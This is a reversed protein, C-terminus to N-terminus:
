KSCEKLTEEQERTLKIGDLYNSSYDAKNHYAWRHRHLEGANITALNGRHKARNPVGYGKINYINGTELEVMFAGSTGADINAWTKKIKYHYAHNEKFYDLRTINVHGDKILEAMELRNLENCLQKLQNELEHM